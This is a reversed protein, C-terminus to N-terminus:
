ITSLTQPLQTIPVYIAYILAAVLIGMLSLLLPQLILAFRKLSKEAREFYLEAIHEMMVPLAGSENGVALMANVEPLAQKGFTKEYADDISFGLSVQEQLAMFKKQVIANNSLSSILKISELLSKGGKLLLSLAQFFLSLTLAWYIKKVFPMHILFWGQARKYFSSRSIMWLLVFFLGILVSLKLMGINQFMHSLSMLRELSPPLQQHTVITLRDFSPLIAFFIVLLVVIFFLFTMAPVQLAARIKKKISVKMQLFRVLSTLANLLNGSQEGSQILGIILSDFVHAFAKLAGALSSGHKVAQYLESVLLKQVMSGHRSLVSLGQSLLLGADVLKYLQQFFYEQQELTLKENHALRKRDAWMLGLEKKLLLEELHYNHSAWEEGEYENGELDIAGWRYYPM